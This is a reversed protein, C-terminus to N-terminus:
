ASELWRAALIAALGAHINSKITPLFIPYKDEGDLSGDLAGSILSILIQPSRRHLILM